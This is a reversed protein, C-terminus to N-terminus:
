DQTDDDSPTAASPDACSCGGDPVVDGMMLLALSVILFLMTLRRM